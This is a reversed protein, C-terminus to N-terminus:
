RESTATKLANATLEAKAIRLTLVSTVIREILEMNEMMDTLLTKAIPHEPLAKAM